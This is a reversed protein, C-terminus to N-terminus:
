NVPAPAKQKIKWTPFVFHVIERIPAYVNSRLIKFSFNWFM